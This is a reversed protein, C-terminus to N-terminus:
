KMKTDLIRSLVKDEVMSMQIAPIYGANKYQEYFKEPDQGSQMAQYYVAQQVEQEGVKVALKSALSDILFTAKVSQTAEDRFTDRIEKLKEENERLEKIEDENMSQAKKNLAMDIEQEIVFEPLDFKISSVLSKLLAPKLEDNYLKSLEENEMQVKIREKLTDLTANEDDPLIKKILEDDIEVKQKEKIGVVKVKFVVPKGALEKGQYDEPFTVNVEVEEDRKVGILQDEFGNIFQNSGLVLEFNSAAGGEFNKGDLFGEFDLVATDGEKMKRNKKVDAIPAQAEAIETIRATVDADKVKPRDFEKAHSTYDGLDIEPRMAIKVTVEIKDDSKDFKSVNPEGILAKNSIKMQELGANLVERLAETEADQVLKEGHQQKIVAAPVKGKRFGQINATKAYEKAIRDINSDIMEKYIVAEIIANAGDIKNSKIEM